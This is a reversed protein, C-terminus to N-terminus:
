TFLAKALQYSTTSKDDAPFVLRRPSRPLRTTIVPKIATGKDIITTIVSSITEREFSVDRM